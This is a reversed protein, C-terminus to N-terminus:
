CPLPFGGDKISSVDEFPPNGMAINSYQPTVQLDATQMFKKAIKWLRCFGGTVEVEYM